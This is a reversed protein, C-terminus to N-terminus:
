SKEGLDAELWSKDETSLKKNKFKWKSNHPERKIITIASETPILEYEDSLDFELEDIIDKPLRFGYSNGIKQLKIAGV